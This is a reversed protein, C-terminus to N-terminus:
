LEKKAASRQEVLEHGLKVLAEHQARIRERRAHFMWETLQFLRKSGPVYKLLAGKLRRMVKEYRISLSTKFVGVASTPWCGCSTYLVPFERRYRRAVKAYTRFYQTNITGYSAHITRIPFIGAKKGQLRLRCCLEVIYMHWTRGLDALPFREFVGYPLVTICEDLAFCEEVHVSVQAGPQYGDSQLLSAVCFGFESQGAGGLIAYEPFSEDCCAVINKLTDPEPLCIDPHVLMVYKGRVRDAASAVVQRMNRYTGRSNDVALLEYDTYSQNLLSSLFLEEYQPANYYVCIISLAPPRNNEM